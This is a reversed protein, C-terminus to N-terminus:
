MAEPLCFHARLVPCLDRASSDVAIIRFQGTVRGGALSKSDASLVISSDGSSTLVSIVPAQGGTHAVISIEDLRFPFAGLGSETWNEPTIPGSESDVALSIERSGPAIGWGLEWTIMIGDPSYETATVDLFPALTKLGGVRLTTIPSQSGKVGASPRGGRGDGGPGRQRLLLDAVNRSLRIATSQVTVQVAVSGFAKLHRGAGARIKEAINFGAIDSWQHHDARECGRLYSELTAKPQQLRECLEATLRQGPSPVFVAILYRGDASGSSGGSWARSEASDDWRICMGPGRMFAVLPRFPGTTESRGFLCLFPDPHNEPADMQLERKSMMVAAIYGATQSKAFVKRLAVQELLHAGIDIDCADLYDDSVRAARGTRNYLSQVVQFVPLMDHRRVVVGNVSATLMPGSRFFPNDLRGCFWRQLAVKLYDEASAFWWAPPPIGADDGDDGFSPPSPVLDDKLFPIIVVTGTEDPGFPKIGIQSLVRRIDTIKTLPRMAAAGWWAIGTRTSAQLCDGKNENEVLCAVLREQPDGGASIRSYYIVLGAGVRFYCTKGLGWSGGAGEDSRTRGIEYVLKLLNGHPEGPAVEELALPGTLGETFTDRIELLQGGSPFRRKMVDANIGDALLSSITETAHTRIVFDVRVEGGAKQLAADMSNQVAERVLLDLPMMSENQMVRLLSAGSEQM